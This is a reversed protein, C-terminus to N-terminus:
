VQWDNQECPPHLGGWDSMGRPLGGGRGPSPWQLPRYADYQFANKYKQKNKAAVM